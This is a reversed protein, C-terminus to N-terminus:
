SESSNRFLQNLYDIRRNIIVLKSIKKEDANGKLLEDKQKQLTDLENKWRERRGQIPLKSFLKGLGGLFDAIGGM